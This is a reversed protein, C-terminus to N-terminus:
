DAPFRILDRGVAEAIREDPWGLGGETEDAKLLIHARKLERVDAKSHALLRELEGREEATVTVRYKKTTVPKGAM